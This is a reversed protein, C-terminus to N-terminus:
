LALALWVSGGHQVVGIKQPNEHAFVLGCDRAVDGRRATRRARRAVVFRRTGQRGDHARIRVVPRELAPRRHRVRQSARGALHPQPATLLAPQSHAQRACVAGRLLQHAQEHFPPTDFESIGFMLPLTVATFGPILDVGKAAADGLYAQVNPSGSLEGAFDYVGSMLVIGAVGANPAAHLEPLAVYSMVHTAGASQGMLIIGDPDGGYETIHERVWAIAAGTDAGGAPFKGQPALRYTITVGVFGNRVAWVGINDYLPQGPVNKDGAVFGGGHVYVLVPRREGSVAGHFVDLRHRADSGYTRDRAVTLDPFPAVTHSAAYIQQSAVVMEPWPKASAEVIAVAFEERM